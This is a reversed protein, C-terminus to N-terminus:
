HSNKALPAVPPEAQQHVVVPDPDCRFMLAFDKRDKLSEMAGLLIGAGANAQRNDPFRHLSQAAAIADIRSGPATTRKPNFQLLCAGIAVVDSIIRKTSSLSSSMTSTRRANLFHRM